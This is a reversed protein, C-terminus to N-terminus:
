FIRLNMGVFKSIFYFCFNNLKLQKEPTDFGRQVLEKDLFEDSLKFNVPAYLSKNCGQEFMPLLHISDEPFTMAYKVIDFYSGLARPNIGIIKSQEMWSSNQKSTNPGEVEKGRFIEDVNPVLKKLNTKTQEFNWGLAVAPIVALFPAKPTHRVLKNVTSYNQITNLKM